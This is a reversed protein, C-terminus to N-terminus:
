GGSAQVPGIAAILQDHSVPKALTADAGLSRAISLFQGGFAGSVAVIRLSPQAARLTRILDIGEREPMVLDTVVADFPRVRVLELARAGNAAVTVDYGAETLVSQFFGRVAEDDDVVLIARAPPEDIIERVKAVLTDPSFPKALYSVRPATLIESTMADPSYGSMYLVKM